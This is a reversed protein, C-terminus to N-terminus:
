EVSYRIRDCGSRELWYASTLMVLYLLRYHDVEGGKQNTRRLPSLYFDKVQPTGSAAVLRMM